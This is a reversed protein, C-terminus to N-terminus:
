RDSPEVPLVVQPGVALGHCKMDSWCEATKQVWPVGEVSFEARASTGCQAWMISVAGSWTSHAKLEPITFVLNGPDCCDYYADYVYVRKVAMGTGGGWVRLTAVVDFLSTGSPNSVSFNFTSQAQDPICRLKILESLKIGIATNYVELLRDHYELLYHLYAVEYNHIEILNNIVNIWFVYDDCTCCETCDNRIGFVHPPKSTTVRPDSHDFGDKDLATVEICKCDGVVYINGNTDGAVHNLTKLAPETDEQDQNWDASITITNNKVEAHIGQEFIIKLNNSHAQQDVYYVNTVPVSWCRSVLKIQKSMTTAYNCSTDTGPAYESYRCTNRGRKDSWFWCHSGLNYKTLAKDNTDLLVNGHEDTFQLRLNDCWVQVYVDGSVPKDFVVGIDSVVGALECDGDFPYLSGGQNQNLGVTRRNGYETFIPATM